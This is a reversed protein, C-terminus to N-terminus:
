QQTETKFGRLWNENEELIMGSAPPPIDAAVMWSSVVFSWSHMCLIIEPLLPSFFPVMGPPWAWMNRNDHSGVSCLFFVSRAGASSDNQYHTDTSRHGPLVLPCSTMRQTAVALNM